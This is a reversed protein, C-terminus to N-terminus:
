NMRCGHRRHAADRRGIRQAAIPVQSDRLADDRRSAPGSRLDHRWSRLARLHYAASLGSPGSGVILVRKGSEAEPLAFQWGREIAVDGLFREVAHINVPKDLQGRNCSSECPHYCVRGMIAPLPNNETLAQWASRLRRGRRLVVMGSHERRGSLRSQVPALSRCVPAAQDAVLRDPQCPEIRCRAHNCIAKAHVIGIAAIWVGAINRDAMKPDARHARPGADKGFLHAFRKQLKLYEDVPVKHRIPNQGHSNWGAGRVASVPRNRGGSARSSRTAGAGLGLRPSVARLHSHLARRANGDSERVKCELDRLKAVTATAVYPIRHAM